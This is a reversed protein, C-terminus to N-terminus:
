KSTDRYLTTQSEERFDEYSIDSDEAPSNAAEVM